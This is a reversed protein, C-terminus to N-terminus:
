PRSYAAMNAPGALVGHSAAEHNLLGDRALGVRGSRGEAGAYLPHSVGLMGIGGEVEGHHRVRGLTRVLAMEFGYLAEGGHTKGGGFSTDLRFIAAVSGGKGTVRGCVNKLLDKL